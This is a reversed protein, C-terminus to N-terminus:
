CSETSAGDASRPSTGPDTETCAVVSVSWLMPKQFLSETTLGPSASVSPPAVTSPAYRHRSASRFSAPHYLFGGGRLLRPYKENISFLINMDDITTNVEGVPYLYYQRPM